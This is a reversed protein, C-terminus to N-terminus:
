LVTRTRISRSNNFASTTKLGLLASLEAQAKNAERGCGREIIRMTYECSHKLLYMYLIAQDIHMCMIRAESVSVILDWNDVLLKIIM